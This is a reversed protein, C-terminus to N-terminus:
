KLFFEILHYIKEMLSAFGGIKSLTSIKEWIKKVIIKEPYPKALQAKVTEIDAIYDIKANEPLDSLMVKSKLTDLASYLEYYNRQVINGVGIVIISDRINEFTMGSFRGTADFKSGKEFYRLGVDSLRYTRKEVEIRRKLLKYRKTQEEVWGNKILFDLSTVIQNETLGCKKLERKLESPTVALSKLSRARKRKNYLFKLIVERIEDNMRKEM